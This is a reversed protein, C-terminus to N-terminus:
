TRRTHGYRAIHVPLKDSSRMAFLSRISRVKGPNGGLVRIVRSSLKEITPLPVLSEPMTSYLRHFTSTLPARYRWRQPRNSRQYTVARPESNLADSLRLAPPADLFDHTRSCALVKKARWWVASLRCPVLQRHHHHSATLPSIGPNYSRRSVTSSLERAAREVGQLLKVALSICPLLPEFIQLRFGFIIELPFQAHLSESFIPIRTM